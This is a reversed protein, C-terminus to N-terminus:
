FFNLQTQIADITEQSLVNEGEMNGNGIFPTLEIHCDILKQLTAAILGLDSLSLDKTYIDNLIREGLASLIAQLTQSVDGTPDVLPAM